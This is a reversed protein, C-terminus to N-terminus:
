PTEKRPRYWLYQADCEAVLIGNELELHQVDHKRKCVCPGRGAAIVRVTAGGLDFPLRVWDPVTSDGILAMHPDDESPAFDVGPEKTFWEIM